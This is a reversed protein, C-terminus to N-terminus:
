VGVTVGLTPSDIVRRTGAKIDEVHRRFMEVARLYAADWQTPTSEKKHTFIRHQIAWALFFDCGAASLRGACEKESMGAVRDYDEDFGGVEILKQRPASALSLEYMHWPMRGDPGVEHQRPDGEWLVEPKNNWVQEYHHGPASVCSLPDERYSGLFRELADPEFHIWDCAFVCLDARAERVLGNWAGNLRYFDGPRRPPDALVRIRPDTAVFRGIKDAPLSILWEWRAETQASLCRAVMPLGDPRVSATLVSILPTDSM